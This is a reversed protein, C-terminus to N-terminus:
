DAPKIVVGHVGDAETHIQIPSGDPGGQGLLQFTGNIRIDYRAVLCRLDLNAPQVPCAAGTSALEMDASGATAVWVEHGVLDKWRGRAGDPGGNGNGNGPHGFLAQDSASTVNLLATAPRGTWAVLSRVLVPEGGRRRMVGVVFALYTYTENHIKVEIQSPRIGRRLAAASHRLADAREVDGSVEAELGAQTIAAELGADLSLNAEAPAAPSGEQCASALLVGALLSLPRFSRRSM